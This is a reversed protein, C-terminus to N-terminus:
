QLILKQVKSNKLNTKILYVGTTNGKLDIWEEKNQIYQKLITKGALDTVILHIGKQPVQDFSVKIKGSTPNPYITMQLNRIIQDIGTNIKAEQTITVKQSEIGPASVTITATRATNGTNESATFTLSNTGPGITPTVTVWTQDSGIACNLDSSLDITAFSGQASKLTGTTSSLKFGPMEVINKFYKWQNAAQYASKSGYPVYLNCSSTVVGSFVGNSSNLDVPSISYVYVSSLSCAVFAFSKISVVSSPISVTTLNTCLGFAYDNISTISSPITVSALGRCDYFVKNSITTISSPITVSTLVRCSEFASSEISSVSSPIIYNGTKSTPCQILTTQTKNFLVGDISSYNPNNAVVNIFASCNNFASRGILIASSPITLSTLKSCYGFASDGISTITSPINIATLGECNKFASNGISTITPPLIISNLSIKGQNTIANCFTYNPIGNAPYSINSTGYTGEAGTYAVITVGSLDIDILSPMEDRMTKFDRADITGTLYLGTITSLQGAFITKLNGAVVEVKGYQTVTITQTSIGIASITVTAARIASTPNANASLTITSSGTPAVLPNITLWTQNSTATWSMSSSINTLATGANPTMNIMNTSLFIGPMEVINKFDKWQNAAQYASKSGYPVYLTCNTKNVNFFVDHSSNLNVPSIPYVYISSLKNCNYFVCSGISTVSYPITVSTLGSCNNFADDEIYIVSSPITVTTLSSCFSFASGKIITVSSPITVSKLGSCNAFTAGEISNVSSPITITTLSNCSNFASSGITKVSSPITVSALRSCYRFADGEISIVSSPIMYSEAKSTPCHILKTQEKNFLVGDISSYKTNNENVNILASCDFAYSAISTVSSPITVSTLSNCESFTFDPISTVSSPIIYNGTRSVPCQIITTKDKNFLVGDISSYNLNNADVNIFASCSEFAVFGINTVSSPIKIATLYNCYRFAYYEISTITAPLIISIIHNQGRCPLIYFAEAPIENAPYTSISTNENTGEVGTYAVITVDSLDVNTLAPMADRMTKFDRADITGTLTLTRITTAKSAILHYLGGATVNKKIPQNITIKQDSLGEASITITASRDSGTNNETATIILTTKGSVGNSASLSLWSQNSSATWKASSCIDETATGGKTAIELVNASLFFGNYGDPLSGPIINILAYQNENLYYGSPNLNGIYFYGDSSGSWGWNFHFYDANQYGDCIFSHGVSGSGTYWIPHRLDLESKLINTWESTTLGGRNVLMANSSYNFYQVLEDRPYWAGSGSSGYKTDLSVGCHYMLTAVADNPSNVSNPMQSWQYTTSGFDASLTGYSGCSYSHSGTGKTPYNWYKMIQAMSTASCGTVVHGCPGAADAPCLSNYYCGQDWKTQILPEVSSSEVVSNVSSLNNWTASITSDPHLDNQKIYEIEQKRNEMWATFAPAQNKESYNEDLSYGIIPYARKDASVIVFSHNISDNLVFYLTDKSESTVSHSSFRFKSQNPSASKLNSNGVSMLHNRAIEKATNINISQAFGINNTSIILGTLLLLTTLKM